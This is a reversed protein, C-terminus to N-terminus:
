WRGADRDVDIGAGNRGVVLADEARLHAARANAFVNGAEDIEVLLADEFEVLEDGSTVRELSDVFGDCRHLAALREAIDDDEVSSRPGRMLRISVKLLRLM